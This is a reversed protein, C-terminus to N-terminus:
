VVPDLSYALSVAYFTIATARGNKTATDGYSEQDVCPVVEYGSNTTLANCKTKDQLQTDPWREM